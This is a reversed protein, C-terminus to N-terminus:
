QSHVIYVTCHVHLPASLFQLHQLAHHHHQDQQLDEGVKAEEDESGNSSVEEKSAEAAMEHVLYM